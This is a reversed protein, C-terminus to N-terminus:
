ASLSHGQAEIAIPMAAELEELAARLEQVATKIVALREVPWANDRSTKDYKMIARVTAHLAGMQDPLSLALDYRLKDHLSPMPITPADEGADVEVIEPLPDDPGIVAWSPVVSSPIVGASARPKPQPLIGNEFFVDTIKRGEIETPSDFKEALRVYRSVMSDSFGHKRKWTSFSGHKTKSKALLIAKGIWWADEALRNIRSVCFDGLRELSWTEDPVITESPVSKSKM